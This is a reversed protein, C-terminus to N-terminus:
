LEFTFPGYQIGNIILSTVKFNECKYTTGGGSDDINWFAIYINGSVSSNITITDSKNNKLDITKQKVSNKWIADSIVCRIEVNTATGNEVEIQVVDGETVNINHFPQLFIFSNCGYQSVNTCSFSYYAKDSSVQQKFTISNPPIYGGVYKFVLAQRLYDIWNSGNFRREFSEAVWNIGDFRKNATCDVWNTGDFRKTSM